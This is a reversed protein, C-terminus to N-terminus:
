LKHIGARVELSSDVIKTVRLKSVLHPLKWDSGVALFQRSNHTGVIVPVFVKFVDVTSLLLLLLLMCM